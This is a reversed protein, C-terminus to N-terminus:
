RFHFWRRKRPKTDLKKAEGSEVQRIFAGVKKIFENKNYLEINNHGAGEVIWRTHLNPANMAVVLGHNVKVEADENGHIVMFPAITKKVSDLNPYIDFWKTSTLPFLVRLGSAIGSQIVVGSVLHPYKKAMYVSPGSGLSQGWCILTQPNFATTVYKIVADCDAFTNAPTPVGSSSGYGSYDYAFVSVDLLHAIEILYDRMAGLDTANAHSFIVTTSSFPHRIHM